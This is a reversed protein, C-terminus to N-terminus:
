KRKMKSKKISSRITPLIIARNPLSSKLIPVRSHSLFRISPLSFRGERQFLMWEDLFVQQGEAKHWAKHQTHTSLQKLRTRSKTVGHVTAEWDGRDTPNELCSYQLPIGHGGGPSRGLGPVSGTEHRRCQCTPWWSPRTSYKSTYYHAFYLNIPVM